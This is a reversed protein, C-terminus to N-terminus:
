MAKFHFYILKCLFFHVGLEEGEEGEKDGRGEGDVPAEVKVM